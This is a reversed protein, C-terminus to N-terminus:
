RDGAPVRMRPGIEEDDVWVRSDIVIALGLGCTNLRVGTDTAYFGAQGEALAHLAHRQALKSGRAADANTSPGGASVARLTGASTAPLRLPSSRRQDAWGAPGTASGVTWCRYGTIGGHARRRDSGVRGSRVPRLTIPSSRAWPQEGVLDLWKSRKWTAGAVRSVLPHEVNQPDRTVCASVNAIPCGCYVVRKRPHTSSTRCPNSSM